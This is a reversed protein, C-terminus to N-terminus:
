RYRRIIYRSQHDDFITADELDEEYARLRAFADLEARMAGQVRIQDAATSVALASSAAATVYDRAVEPLEDWPLDLLLDVIVSSSFTFGNTTRDFLWAGRQVPDVATYHDPSTDIRLIDSDVAIRGTDDPALTVGRQTNFNWGRLLMKRRADDLLHKAMAVDPSVTGTITNVPASGISALMTNVAQLESLM